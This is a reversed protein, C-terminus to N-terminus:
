EEEYSVCTKSESDKLENIVKNKEEIVKKLTSFREQLEKIASEPVVFCTGGNGCEKAIKVDLPTPQAEDASCSIMFVLLFLVTLPKM